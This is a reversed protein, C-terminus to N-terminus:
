SRASSSSLPPSSPKPRSSPRSFPSSSLRICGGRRFLTTFRTPTREPTTASSPRKASIPSSSVPTPTACGRCSFPASASPEWTPLSLRWAPSPLLIGGLMHWAETKKDMFFHIAFSPSFAKLVTWDYRVLNHIGFGANFALWVLVIPAFTTALKTTGFPQILFLVILIGCSTGVVISSSIDPKVVSLGQVAGLVSQAPTLVGDAMVMSVALVGIIKLLWRFFNSKELIARLSNNVPRMDETMTREMRVLVQERPDRDTLHAYRTLLSYCSFTGGEGENDARLVILVYKVTVMLTLSWIVVSLVQVLENYSPESTFTSSFVYLPSTGIDGYIVGVSQYALWMLTRGRFVQKTREETRWNDGEEVDVADSRSRRDFSAKSISRSNYIGGAFHSEGRTPRIGDPDVKAPHPEEQIKITANM